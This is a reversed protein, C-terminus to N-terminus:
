ARPLKAWVFHCGGANSQTNVRVPLRSSQLYHGAPSLTTERFADKRDASPHWPWRPAEQPIVQAKSIRTSRLVSSVSGM